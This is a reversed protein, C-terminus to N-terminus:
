EHTEIKLFNTIEHEKIIESVEADKQSSNDNEHILRKLRVVGVVLTLPIRQTKIM